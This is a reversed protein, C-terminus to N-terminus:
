KNVIMKIASSYKGAELRFIYVGSAVGTADFNVQHNGAPMDSKLLTAVERGLIDYVVGKVFGGEPLSFRIKTEPNFPNPYNQYLSFAVPVVEPDEVGVVPPAIKVTSYLHYDSSIAYGEGEPTIELWKIQEQTNLKTYTFTIGFDRSTAIYGSDSGAYIISDGSKRPSFLNRPSIYHVFNDGGDTSIKLVRNQVVAFVASPRMVVLGTWNTYNYYSSDTIWTAGDNTSHAVLTGLVPAPNGQSLISGFGWITSDVRDTRFIVGPHLYTPTYQWTMGGDTTKGHSIKFGSSESSTNFTIGKLSDTFFINADAGGGPVPQWTLGGDTTSIIPGDNVLIGHTRSRFRVQANGYTKSIIKTWTYGGNTSKHLGNRDAVFIYHSDVVSISSVIYFKTPSRYFWEKQAYSNTFFLLLVIPFWLRGRCKMLFPLLSTELVLQM